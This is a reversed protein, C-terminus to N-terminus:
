EQEDYGNYFCLLMKCTGGLVKVSTKNKGEPIAATDWSIPCHRAMGTGFLVESDLCLQPPLVGMNCPFTVLPDEAVQHILPM